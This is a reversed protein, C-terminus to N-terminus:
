RGIYRDTDSDSEGQPRVLGLSLLIIGTTGGETGAGAEGDGGKYPIWRDGRRGKNM